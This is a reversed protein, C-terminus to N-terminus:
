HERRAPSDHPHAHQHSHQHTQQQLRGDPPGGPGPAAPANPMEITGPVGRLTRLIRNSGPAGVHYHYGRVEDTHGGHEDLGEAARGQEDLQAFIAFGDMAYGIMPAHGDAQAVEKSHGTAAHYHYGAFPNLHGGGDDLPALTHAGLIAEVPAPPDFKVGNFAVGVPAHPTPITQRAFRPQVPIIYTTIFRDTYWSPDGEVVHNQYRPDVDPRAAAEFAERTNTYRVSGDERVLSWEPDDFFKPANKVFPGDVDHLKGDHMWVGAKEPGDTVYRPSWPGMAHESPESKTTIM